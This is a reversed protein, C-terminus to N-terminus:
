SAQRGIRRETGDLIRRINARHTYFLLGGIIVFGTAAVPREAMWLYLPVLVFTALAALSSIRTALGIALWSLIALLGSGPALALLAGLATAVGKGGRFDFFVPYLHGLFAALGAIVVTPAHATLAATGLVPLAGKAADGLLTLGAAFRGGSRLVNTAGPNGSGVGRPDPLGMARSVIVATSLSGILYGCLSALAAPLLLSLSFM